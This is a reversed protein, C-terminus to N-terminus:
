GADIEGLHGSEIEEIKAIVFQSANVKRSIDHERFYVKFLILEIGDVQRAIYPQHLYIQKAIVNLM